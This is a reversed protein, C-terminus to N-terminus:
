RALNMRKLVEDFRPDSRLPDLIPDVRLQTMRHDRHQFAQELGQFARDRDGIRASDEVLGFGPYQGPYHSLLSALDRRWFAEPGQTRYIDTDHWQLKVLDRYYEEPDTREYLEMAEVLFSFNAGMQFARDYYQRSEKYRRAWFCVRGSDAIVPPSTPDLERAQQMQAMAEDFRGMEGLFLGYWHHATVYRPDLAVARRFEADAKPWDWDYLWTTLALSTHAAALRDDLALAKLAAAKAPVFTKDPSDIYYAGMLGYADAEGSYALAYQPDAAIAQQFYEIARPLSEWDRLSWFKRGMLYDRYAIESQTDRRASEGEVPTTLGMQRSVDAALQDQLSFIDSAAADYRHHWVTQQNRADFLAADVSLREPTASVKGTLVMDVRFERAVDTPLSPRDKLRYVSDHASASVSPLSGLANILSDTIGESLSEVAPDPRAAAFPLVAISHARPPRIAVWTVGAGAALCVIAVAATALVARRRRRVFTSARYVVTDKQARVPQGGLFRALDGALDAVSAYRREPEARLAMSVIKDLDGKLPASGALLERLVAGLSYVDSAATIPDGGIQEPSAYEPTMGRWAVTPADSSSADLIRAIGFDLLKPTGDETVLINAPKIDGHVVNNQHAHQVAECVKLLLAIRGTEDLHRADAYRDIRLGAVYEMVLYPRGDGTTGGDFLRAIHHHDLNALIQRERRFRRQIADTDMGRKILKIAVRRDFAEDSRVALYVAGMGGRGIEETIRYPGVTHGIPSLDEARRFGSADFLPEELFRGAADQHALLDDIAARMAEDQACARDLLPGRVDPPLDMAEALIQMM